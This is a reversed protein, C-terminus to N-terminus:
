QVPPSVPHHAKQEDSIEQSNYPWFEITSIEGATILIGNEGRPHWINKDDIDFIWQVYIDREIPDSSMFSNEGCFGAFRTGNKLTVLVWEETMGGFKWDWAFPITHVPNLGVRRLFNRLVNFQINVGLLLGLVVPGVFIICFWVLVKGFGLEKISLVYDVLFIVLAYYIISVTLYSLVAATPTPNKGTAFQSQVFLAVLGPVLFVLVLHVNDISKIDPM